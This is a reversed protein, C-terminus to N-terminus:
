YVTMRSGPSNMFEHLPASLKVVINLVSLLFYILQAEICLYQQLVLYLHFTILLNHTHVNIYPLVIHQVIDSQIKLGISLTHM